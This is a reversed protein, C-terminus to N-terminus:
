SYFYVVWMLEAKLSVELCTGAGAHSIVLHAKNMDSKKFPLQPDKLTEFAM